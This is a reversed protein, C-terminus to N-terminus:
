PNGTIMRGSYPLLVLKLRDKEHDAFHDWYAPAPAALLLQIPNSPGAAAAAAAAEQAQREKEKALAQNVRFYTM